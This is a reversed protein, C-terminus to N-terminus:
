SSVEQLTCRLPYGAEKALHRTRLKKFEALEKPYTGAVGIGDKHVSLMIATATEADRHFVTMLIQVVFEMTTYDDNHLMVQYLPPEALQDDNKEITLEGPEGNCCFDSHNPSM